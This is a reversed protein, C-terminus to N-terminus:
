TQERGTNRTGILHPEVRGDDRTGRLRFLQHAAGVPLSPRRKAVSLVPRLQGLGAQRGMKARRGHRPDARRPEGHVVAAVVRTVPQQEFVQSAAQGQESGGSAGHWKWGRARHKLEIRGSCRDPLGDGAIGAASM